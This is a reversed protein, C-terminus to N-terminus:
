EVSFHRENISLRGGLTVLGGPINYSGISFHIPVPQDPRFIIPRPDNGNGLSIDKIYYMPKGPTMENVGVDPADGIIRNDGRIDLPPFQEALEPKANDESRGADIAPSEPKLRFDLYDPNIWQPGENRNQRDDGYIDYRNTGYPLFCNRM